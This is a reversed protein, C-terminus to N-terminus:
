WGKDGRTLKFVGETAALLANSRWYAADGKRPPPKAVLEERQENFKLFLEIAKMERDNQLTAMQLELNRQAMQQTETFQCGGVM